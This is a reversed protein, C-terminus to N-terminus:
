FELGLTLGMQSQTNVMIGAYIPGIIRRELQLQYDMKIGHTQLTPMGTASIHWQKAAIPLSKSKDRTVTSDIITIITGDSQKVIKTVTHEQVITHTETKKPAYRLVLCGSLIAGTIFSAILYKM